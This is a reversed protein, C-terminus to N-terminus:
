RLLGARALQARVEGAKNAHTHVNVYLNEMGGRRIRDAGIGRM